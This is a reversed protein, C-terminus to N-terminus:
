QCNGGGGRERPYKNKIVINTSEPSMLYEKNPKTFLSNFIGRKKQQNQMITATYM